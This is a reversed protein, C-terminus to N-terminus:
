LSKSREIPFSLLHTPIEIRAPEAHEIIKFKNLPLLRLVAKGIIDHSPLSGWDRSDFSGNPSRNDGMVFVKGEPVTEDVDGLTVPDSVPHNTDPSFGQPHKDNYVTVKGSKVVVREGPVAIVRKVFVLNPDRPYHFVIIEGRQPIYEGSKGIFKGFRSLSADVKSVILYDSQDLTPVMSYGVVHFAQFVFLHLVLVIGAPVVLWNVIGLVLAWLLGSFPSTKVEDNEPNTNEAVAPTWPYPATTGPTAKPTVVSAPPIPTNAPPTPIPNVPPPTPPTYPTGLPQDNGSPTNFPPAAPPM